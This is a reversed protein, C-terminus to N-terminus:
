GHKKLVKINDPYLFEHNLNYEWAEVDNSKGSVFFKNNRYFDKVLENKKTSIFEGFLKQAREKRACEVIYALLSEEVRRGIVRCSLLFSDIVWTKPDRKVIAVGILGSDGFKDSVQASVILYNNKELERLNEELYRRSTLTFQNTKQTLQSVRPLNFDNLKEITVVMELKKIYSDIDPAEQALEKRDREIVYMSGKQRDEETIQFTNFDSLSEIASLYRSPDDPLEVVLVEPMEQRIFERNFKDDDIFVLSDTGINLEKAIERMNTVKDNWNIRIAAFHKKRLVMYPHKELVLLADESNNKSNIALIVGRNFLSLIYNQFEWFPRGQSTPGLLLGELTDEGIVGGWLTNDLDLVLCKKTLSSLPKIYALYEDCLLPLVQPSIKIDGLYYLKSDFAKDKGVTGLFLDYDFVFIQSNTRYKEEMARNFERILRRMGIEQKNELIGFSSRVPVEFTHVVIKAKTKKQLSSILSYYDASCQDFLSCQEKESLRSFSFFSPGLMTRTDVFLFIIDPLFSYLRSEGSLIDQVYQNYASVYFSSEVNIERCKVFFVEELGKITSSALIAINTKTTSM